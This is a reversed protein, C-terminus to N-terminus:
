LGPFFSVPALKLSPLLFLPVPGLGAPGQRLQASDGTTLRMEYWVHAPEDRGSM